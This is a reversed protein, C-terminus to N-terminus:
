KTQSKRLNDQYQGYAGLGAQGIKLVAGLYDPAQIQPQRISNITSVAQNQVNERRININADQRLYNTTATANDYGAMGGLDRLLADVSLGSIGSEGASVTATAQARRLALTNAQIQERTDALANGREVELNALNANRAVIANQTQTQNYANQAAAAKNAASAQGAVTAVTSVTSIALMAIPLALPGCM